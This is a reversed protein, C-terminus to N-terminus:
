SEELLILYHKCQDSVGIPSCTCKVTLDVDYIFPFQVPSSLLEAPVTQPQLLHPCHYSLIEPSLDAIPMALCFDLSNAHAYLPQYLTAPQWLDTLSGQLGKQFTRYSSLFLNLSDCSLFM